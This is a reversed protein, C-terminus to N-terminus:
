NFLYLTIEPGLLAGICYFLVANVIGLLLILSANKVRPWEIKLSVQPEKTNSSLGFEDVDSIEKKLLRSPASTILGLLSLNIGLTVILTLWSALQYGLITYLIRFGIKLPLKLATLTNVSLL